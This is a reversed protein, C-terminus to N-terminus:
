PMLGCRAALRFLGLRTLIPRGGVGEYYTRVAQSAM